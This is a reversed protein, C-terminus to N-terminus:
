WVNGLFQRNREQAIALSDALDFFGIEPSLNIWENGCRENCFFHVKCCFTKQLDECYDVKNTITFSMVTDTEKTNTLDHDIVKCAIAKRCTPCHSSISVPKVLLDALFKPILLM